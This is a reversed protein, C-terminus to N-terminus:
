GIALSTLLFPNSSSSRITISVAITPNMLMGIYRIIKVFIRRIEPCFKLINVLPFIVTNSMTKKQPITRPASTIFSYLIKGCNEM